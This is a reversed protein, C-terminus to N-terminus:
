EFQFAFYTCDQTGDNRIAHLVNSGLYYVSGEAGKYFKDGIQMETKGDIVLVIEEARHTHPDHSKVGEKLTTVHMEFRKCMATPREFFDRRGGKDNPKFEIKNWDKVLSGGAINGREIDIPKKARYKMVYYRCSDKGTTQLLFTEGPMFLAVSGASMLYSSDRGIILNGSKIILLHEQNSPVEIKTKTKSPLLVNATVQLWEMDYAMGEFLVSSLINKSNQKVPEKWFYVASQISDRQAFALSPILLIVIFLTKKM